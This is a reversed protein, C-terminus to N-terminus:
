GHKEGKNMYVKYGQQRFERAMRKLQGMSSCINRRMEAQGAKEIAYIGFPVEGSAVKLVSRYREEGM